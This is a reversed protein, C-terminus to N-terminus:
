QSLYEQLAQKNKIAAKLEPTTDSFYVAVYPEVQLKLEGLIEKIEEVSTDNM